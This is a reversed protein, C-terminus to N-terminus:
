VDKKQDPKMRNLERFKNKWMDLSKEANKVANELESMDKIPKFIFTDAGHRMCALANELTVYGSIVIFHVMPYNKKVSRLLDIGDMKPMMIDSIVIDFKEKEMLSLAKEGNESTKIQYGMFDFHNYLMNRIEKEDDVILLKCKM